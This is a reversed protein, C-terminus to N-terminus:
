TPAMAWHFTWDLQHVAKRYETLGTPRTSYLVAYQDHRVSGWVDPLGDPGPSPLIHLDWAGRLAIRLLLALEEGESPHLLHGPAENLTRTEGHLQRLAYYLGYDRVDPTNIYPTFEWLLCPAAPTVVQHILGAFATLSEIDKPPNCSVYVKVAAIRPWSEQDLVYGHDEAWDRCEDDTLFRV